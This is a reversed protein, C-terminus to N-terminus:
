ALLTQQPTHQNSYPTKIVFLHSICRLFRKCVHHRRVPWLAAQKNLRHHYLLTLTFTLVQYLTHILAKHPTIYFIILTQANSLISPNYPQTIRYPHNCWWRHESLLLALVTSDFDTRGFGMGPVQHKQITVSRRQVRDHTNNSYKRWQRKPTSRDTSFMNWVVLFCLSFAFRFLHDSRHHSSSEVAALCVIMVAPSCVTTLLHYTKIWKSGRVYSPPRGRM